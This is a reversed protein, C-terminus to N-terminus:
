AWSRVTPHRLSWAQWCEKLWTMTPETEGAHWGHCLDAVTITCLSPPQRRHPWDALGLRPLVAQSIRNRCRVVQEATIGYEHFLCLATLHVAVSQRKRRDHEAGAPHQVAFCDVHLLRM